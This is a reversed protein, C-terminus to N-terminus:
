KRCLSWRCNKELRELRVLGRFLRTGEGLVTHEAGGDWLPMKEKISLQARAYGLSFNWLTILFMNESCSESGM